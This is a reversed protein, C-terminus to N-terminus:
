DDGIHHNSDRSDDKEDTSGELETEESADSGGPVAVHSETLDWHYHSHGRLALVRQAETRGVMQGLAQIDRPEHSRFAFIDSLQSRLDIPCDYSRQSILMLSVNERRGFRVVGQISESAEEGRRFFLSLEDVVLVCHGVEEDRAIRCAFDLIERPNEDICISIRFRDQRCEELVTEWDFCMVTVDGWECLPDVVLLRPVKSVLEKALFTKGTGTVGVVLVRRASNNRVSAIKNQGRNRLDLEM